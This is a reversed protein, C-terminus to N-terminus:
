SLAAAAACFARVDEADHYLGLGIRLVNDRADTVVGRAILAARLAAAREHRLALFRAGHVGPQPPNIIRAEGLPGAAGGAITDALEGRLPAVHACIAETDLRERELMARVANFRYLATPDFTAGWFRAGDKAYGVQGATNELAAFEAFWGTLEPREAFGAPAHLFGLGEGTMAYKYGGGILFVRDAIAAFDAPLAMFSHYLDIILWPGDPRALAALEALAPFVYGTKFFVHSLFILDHRGARAADLFREAFGDSPELPMTELVVRGSEVFRAAQRRFSHFEGDTSLIRLPQATNASFVRLLLEHTNPAFVITNADPLRLEDAIHRQAQPVITDFVRDWKTDALRAAEDWARMHGEFSADPWLHHSHAAFHLRGPAAALARSFLRKYSV